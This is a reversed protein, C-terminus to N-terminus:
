KSLTKKKRGFGFFTMLKYCKSHDMLDLFLKNDHFAYERYQFQFFYYLNILIRFFVNVKRPNYLVCPYEGATLLYGMPKFKHDIEEFIRKFEDNPMGVDKILEGDHYIQATNCCLSDFPRQIEKELKKVFDYTRSTILVIKNGADYWRRLFRINKRSICRKFQRPYFLTKDLDVALVKPM